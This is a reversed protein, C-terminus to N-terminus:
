YWGAGSHHSSFTHLLSPVAWSGFCVDDDTFCPATHRMLTCSKWHRQNSSNLSSSSSSSSVSCFVSAAPHISFHVPIWSVNYYLHVLTCSKWHCQNSRNLSSSSSVSCFVSAAPHISVLISYQISYSYFVSTYLSERRTITYISLYVYCVAFAVWSNKFTFFHSIRDTEQDWGSQAANWESFVFSFVSLGVFWCCSFDDATFVQSLMVFFSVWDRSIDVLDLSLATM